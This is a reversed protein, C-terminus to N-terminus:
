TSSITSMGSACAVVDTPEGSGLLALHDRARTMAVYLLSIQMSTSEAQEIPDAGPTVRPFEEPGVGILFVVKLERGNVRHFTGSWVKDAAKRRLEQPRRFLQRVLPRNAAFSPSVDGM